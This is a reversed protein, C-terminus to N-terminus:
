KIPKYHPNIIGSEVKTWGVEAAVKDSRESQSLSRDSEAFGGCNCTDSLYPYIYKQEGKSHCCVLSHAGQIMFKCNTCKVPNNEWEARENELKEKRSDPSIIKKFKKYISNETM